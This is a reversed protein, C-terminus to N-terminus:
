CVNQSTLRRFNAEAADLLTRVAVQHDPGIDSSFNAGYTLYAEQGGCLVSALRDAEWIVAEVYAPDIESVEARVELTRGAHTFAKVALMPIDGGGLRDGVWDPREDFVAVSGSQSIPELEDNIPEYARGELAAGVADLLDAVDAAADFWDVSAILEPPMDLITHTRYYPSLVEALRPILPPADKFGIRKACKLAKVLDHRIHVRCWDDSIGRHLLCAKLALEIAISTHHRSIEPYLNWVEFAVGHFDRGNRLFVQALHRDDRKSKRHTWDSM